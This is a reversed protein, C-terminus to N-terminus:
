ISLCHRQTHVALHPFGSSSLSQTSPCPTGGMRLGEGLAVDKLEWLEAVLTGQDLALNHQKTACVCDGVGVEVM